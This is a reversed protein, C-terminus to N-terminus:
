TKQCHFFLCIVIYVALQLLNEKFRVTISVQLNLKLKDGDKEIQKNYNEISPIKGVRNARCNIEVLAAGQCICNIEIDPTSAYPYEEFITVEPDNCTM